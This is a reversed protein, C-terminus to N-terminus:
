DKEIWVKLWGKPLLWENIGFETVWDHYFKGSIDAAALAREKLDMKSIEEKKEGWAKGIEEKAREYDGRDVKEKAPDFARPEELDPHHYSKGLPGYLALGPIDLARALVELGSETGIKPMRGAHCSLSVIDGSYDEPLEDKLKAALIKIQDGALSGIKGSAGHGLLYLREGTGIKGFDITLWEDVIQGNGSERLAFALTSLTTWDTLGKLAKSGVNAVMRQIVPKQSPPLVPVHALAQLQAVKRSQASNMALAQLKKQVMAEPRNDVFSFATKGDGQRRSIDDTASRGKDKQMKDTLTTM